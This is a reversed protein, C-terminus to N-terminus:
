TVSDAIFKQFKGTLVTLDCKCKLGWFYHTSLGRSAAGLGDCIPRSKVQVCFKRTEEFAVKTGM